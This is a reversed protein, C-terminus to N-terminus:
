LVCHGDIKKELKLVPFSAVAQVTSALVGPNPEAPAVLLSQRLRPHERRISPDPRLSADM